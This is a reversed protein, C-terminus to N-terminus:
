ASRAGAHPWRVGTLEVKRVDTNLLRCVLFDAQRFSLSEASGLVLDSFFVDTANQFILSDPDTGYGLGGTFLVRGNFHSGEFTISAGSFCTGEFYSVGLFTAGVFSVGETFTARGFNAGETFTAGFYADQTFTAGTFDADQTFTAGGFYANQTFTAGDFYADQTFTAGRFDAGEIFTAETFDADQTFSAERFDAYQTFTPTPSVNRVGYATILRM